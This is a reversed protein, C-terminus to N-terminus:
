GKIRYAITFVLKTTATLTAASAVLAVVRTLTSVLYPTAVAAPVTASAFNVIGGASLVIGDAYRDADGSDGIDLTLTTGPDACIVTSLQPVLECGIPLDLLQLTDNAAETGLLTYTALAYLVTAGTRIGDVGAKDSFEPLERTTILDSKFNPM